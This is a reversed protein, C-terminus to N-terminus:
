PKNTNTATEEEDELIIARGNASISNSATAMREMAPTHLANRLAANAVLQVWQADTLNDVCTKIEDDTAYRPNNVPQVGWEATAGGTNFCYMVSKDGTVIIPTNCPYAHNNTNTNEIVIVTGIEFSLRGGTKLEPAELLKSFVQMFIKTKNEDAIASRLLSEIENIEERNFRDPKKQKKEDKIRHPETKEILVSVLAAKLAEKITM